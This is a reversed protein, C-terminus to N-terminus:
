PLIHRQGTVSWVRDVLGDPAFDFVDIGGVHLSGWDADWLSVGHGDGAILRVASYTLGPRQARFAGVFDAFAQPGTLLDAPNGGDDDARGLYLTFGPACIAHAVGLEGNWLRTWAELTEMITLTM